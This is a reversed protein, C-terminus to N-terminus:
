TRFREALAQADRLLGAETLYGTVLAAPTIDFAPNHAPAATVAVRRMKGDADPGTLFRLEDSSRAEIPVSAGDPTAPDYTSSPLAVYFPVGHAAAALAKLYTGIKNCVDGNATVRDTGVIVLDVEGRQMLLGGANDAVYHHPVGHAGLELATLAGQNRPRTEDVWVHVDIGADHALYIPATATGWAVTALWGANCHTLINVPRVPNRAALDRILPLGAAGIARNAADDEAVIAGAEAHAAAAREGEPLAAVCAHVRDLAWRLNVATPRAQDLRAHAAKLHADSPDSKLAFALGYAGVAGILPAGRTAMDAIAEFCAEPTELRMREFTWPLRRQDFIGIAWGDPEVWISRVTEGNLKM